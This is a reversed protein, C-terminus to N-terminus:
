TGYPPFPSIIKHNPLRERIEREYNWATLLVTEDKLADVPRIEIDTGPIYRGQKQPTDDVCYAIEGAIGLQNILTCAKAAAGFAVLKGGNMKSRIIKESKFIADYLRDWNLPEEPMWAEGGTRRATIRMSGGHMPIHEWETLVFGMRKLFSALPRLHHYDLHEHYIMDFAGSNILDPLYQVEFIVAGGPALVHQIGQFVGQLDDIHAFVNNAFVIDFKMAFNAATQKTFYERIARPHETAPDIGYARFGAANLLDLYIGNNCGIELVAAGKPDMHRLRDVVPQLYREVTKPTAYKYDKFLGSFVYKQQVHGCSACQMLELPYRTAGSDPKEPFSNAVPSPALSFVADVEGDCLRCTARLKM